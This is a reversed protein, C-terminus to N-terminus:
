AKKAYTRYCDLLRPLPYTELRSKFGEDKTRKAKELIGEILAKRSGFTEKVKAATDYLKLLHANSVSKLGKGENLRDLFLGEKEFMAEIQKVLSAKDGFRDKVQQLPSKKM